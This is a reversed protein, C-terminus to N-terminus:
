STPKSARQETPRLDAAGRRKSLSLHYLHKGQISMFDCDDNVLLARSSGPPRTAVDRAHLYGSGSWGPHHAKTRPETGCSTHPPHRFYLLGNARGYTSVLRAREGGKSHHACRVSTPGGVAVSLVAMHKALLNHADDFRAADDDPLGALRHGRLWNDDVFGARAFDQHANLGAADAMCVQVDLFSMDSFRRNEEPVLSRANDLGDTRAYQHGRDAVVHNQRADARHQVRCPHAPLLTATKPQPVT